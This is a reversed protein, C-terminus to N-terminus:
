LAFNPRYTEARSLNFFLNIFAASAVILIGAMTPTGQKQFHGPPLKRNIEERIQSRYLFRILGPAWAFALALSGLTFLLIKVM